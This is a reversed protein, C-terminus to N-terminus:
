PIVTLTYSKISTPAVSFKGPDPLKEINQEFFGVHTTTGLVDEVIAQKVRWNSSDVIYSVRQAFAVSSQASLELVIDTSKASQSTGIQAQFQWAALGGTFFLLAADLEPAPFSTRIVHKLLHDIDYQNQGDFVLSGTVRVHTKHKDYFDVRYQSRTLLLLGDQVSSANGPATTTLRFKATFGPAKAYHSQVNSLVVLPSPSQAAAPVPLALACLV